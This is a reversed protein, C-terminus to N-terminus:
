ARMWAYQGRFLGIFEEDFTNHVNDLWYQGHEAYHVLTDLLWAGDVEDSMPVRVILLLGGHTTLGLLAQDQAYLTHNSELMMKFVQQTRGATAIGFHFNLYMANADGPNHTVQIEYGNYILASRALVEDSSVELKECLQKVLGVYKDRSM